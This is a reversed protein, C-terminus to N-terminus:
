LFILCHNKNKTHFLLENKHRSKNITGFADAVGCMENGM